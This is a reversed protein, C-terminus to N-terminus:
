ALSPIAQGRRDLPCTSRASSVNRSNDLLTGRTAGSRSSRLESECIRRAASLTPESPRLRASREAKLELVPRLWGDFEFNIKPGLTQNRLRILGSGPTAM